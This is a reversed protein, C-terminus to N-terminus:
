NPGSVASRINDRVAGMTLGGVFYKQLVLFMVLLLLAYLICSAFLVNWQASVVLGGLFFMYLIKSTKSRIRAMSYAAIAAFLGTDSYEISPTSLSATKCEKSM